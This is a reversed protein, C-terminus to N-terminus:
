RGNVEELERGYALTLLRAALYTATRLESDSLRGHVAADRAARVQRLEEPFLTHWRALRQAAPERHGSVQAPFQQLQEVTWEEPRLEALHELEELRRYLDLLQQVTRARDAGNPFPEHLEPPLM